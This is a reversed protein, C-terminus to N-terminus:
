DELDILDVYTESGDRGEDLLTKYELALTRAESDDELDIPSLGAPDIVAMVRQMIAVFDRRSIFDRGIKPFLREYLEENGNGPDQDKEGAARLLFGM